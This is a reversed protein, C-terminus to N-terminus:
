AVNALKVTEKLQFALEPVHFGLTIDAMGVSKTSPGALVCTRKKGGQEWQHHAFLNGERTAGATRV